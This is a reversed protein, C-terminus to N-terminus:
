IPSSHTRSLKTSGRSTSSAPNRNSAAWSFKAMRVHELGADAMQTVDTEWRESPWHEPFYCVGLTM